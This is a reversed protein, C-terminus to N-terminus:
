RGRLRDYHHADSTTGLGENYLEELGLADKLDARFAHLAELQEALAPQRRGDPTTWFKQYGGDVLEAVEGALLMGARGIAPTENGTGTVDAAFAGRTVHVFGGKPQTAFGAARVADLRQEFTPVETRVRRFFM